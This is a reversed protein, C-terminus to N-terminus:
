FWGYGPYGYGYGGYGYGPYGVGYGPYGYGGAYPATGIALLDFLVLPLIAKTYAKGNAQVPRVNVRNGRVSVLKGTITQGNKHRIVVQKGILSKLKARQIKM